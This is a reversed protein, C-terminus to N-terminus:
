WWGRLHGVCVVVGVVCIVVFLTKFFGRKIEEEYLDVRQKQQTQFDKIVRQAKDWDEAKVFIKVFACIRTSRTILREEFVDEVEVEIGYSTLVGEFQNGIERSFKGLLKLDSM